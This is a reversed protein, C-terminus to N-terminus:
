SSTGHRYVGGKGRKVPESRNGVAQKPAASATLREVVADNGGTTPPQQESYTQVGSRDDVCWSRRMGHMTWLRLSRLRSM